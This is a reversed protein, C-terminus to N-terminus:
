RAPALSFSLIGLAPRHEENGEGRLWFREFRRLAPKTGDPTQSMPTALMRFQSVKEM